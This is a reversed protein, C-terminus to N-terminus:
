SPALSAQPMDGADFYAVYAGEHLSAQSAWATKGAGSLGLLLRIRDETILDPEQEQIRYPAPPEPLRHFETVIQEFLTTLEASRFEHEHRIGAGASAHQVIAALKWVLTEASIARFPIQAAQAICWELAKEVTEWAPPLFDPGLASSNPYLLTVDDPWNRMEEVLAKNPEVNSIIYFRPFGPRSGSSHAQRIANFRQVAGAVDSSALSRSRTKVQVYVHDRQKILEIDEDKEVLVGNVSSSLMKLLCGVAFLHQYLFGRHTKEILRLQKPDLVQTATNPM